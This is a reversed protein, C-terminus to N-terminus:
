VVSTRTSAVEVGGGEEVAAGTRQALGLDILEKSRWRYLTVVVNYDHCLSQYLSMDCM